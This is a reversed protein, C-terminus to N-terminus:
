PIICSGWTDVVFSGVRPKGRPVGRGFGLLLCALLCPRLPEEEERRALREASYSRVKGQYLGLRVAGFMIAHSSGSMKSPVSTLCHEMCLFFFLVSTSPSCNTSHVSFFSSVFVHRWGKRGLRRLGISAVLIHILHLGLLCVKSSILECVHISKEKM